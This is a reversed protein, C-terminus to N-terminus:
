LDKSTRTGDGQHISSQSLVENWGELCIDPFVVSICRFGVSKSPGLSMGIDPESMRWPISWSRLFRGGFHLWKPCLSSLRVGFKTTGSWWLRSLGALTELWTGTDAAAIAQHFDWGAASTASTPGCFYDEQPKSCQGKKHSASYPQIHLAM